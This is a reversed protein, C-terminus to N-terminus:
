LIETAEIRNKGYEKSFCYVVEGGLPREVYSLLGDDVKVAFWGGTIDCLASSM